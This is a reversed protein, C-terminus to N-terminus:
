KLWGHFSIVSNLGLRILIIASQVNMIPDQDLIPSEITAHSYKNYNSNPYAYKTCSTSDIVDRCMNTPTLM